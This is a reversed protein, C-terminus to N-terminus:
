RSLAREEVTRSVKRPQPQDEAPYYKQAAQSHHAIEREGKGFQKKTSAPKEEQASM